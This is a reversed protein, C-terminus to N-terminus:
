NDAPEGAPEVSTINVLSLLTPRMAGARRTLVAASYDGIIIFEPSQVVFEDADNMRIKIPCHKLQGQLDEKEM